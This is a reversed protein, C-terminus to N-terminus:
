IQIYLRAMRGMHNFVKRLSLEYPNSSDTGVDYVELTVCFGHCSLELQAPIIFLMQRFRDITYPLHFSLIEEFVLSIFDFIVASYQYQCPM